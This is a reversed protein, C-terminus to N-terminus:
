RREIGTRLPQDCEAAHQRHVAPDAILHRAPIGVQQRRFVFQARERMAVRQGADEITSAQGVDQIIRSEGTRRDQEEIEIVELVDVVHVPMMDAVFRQLVERTHQLRAEPGVIM